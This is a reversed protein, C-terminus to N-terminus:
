SHWYNAIIAVTFELSKNNKHYVYNYTSNAQITPNEGTAALKNAIV